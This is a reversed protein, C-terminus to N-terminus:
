RSVALRPRREPPVRQACRLVSRRPRRHGIALVCLGAVSGVLSGQTVITIVLGLASIATAAFFHWRRERYRDSSRGLLVMGVIGFLSPIATLLGIMSVDKVGWGRILTPVWFILTYTAGLLLFYVLSMSYVKPDRLLAWM